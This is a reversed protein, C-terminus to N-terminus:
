NYKTKKKLTVIIISTALTIFLIMLNFGLIAPSEEEDDDSDEDDKEGGSKKDEPLPVDHHYLYITDTVQSAFVFYDGYTSLAVHEVNTIPVSYIPQKPTTKSSNLLYFTPSFTGFPIYYMDQGYIQIAERNVSEVLSQEKNSYNFSKFYKNVAM